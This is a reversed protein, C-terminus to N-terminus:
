WALRTDTGLASTDLVWFAAEPGPSVDLSVKVDGPKWEVSVGEPWVVHTATGGSAGIVNRKVVFVRSYATGGFTDRFAELVDRWPAATGMAYLSPEISPIRVRPYAYKGAFYGAASTVDDAVALRTDLTNSRYGYQTGSTADTSTATFAGATGGTATWDNFLYSDDSSPSVDRYPIEGAATGFTAATGAARYRATRSEIFMGASPHDVLRGGVSRALTQAYDLATFSEATGAAIVVDDAAGGAPLIVRFPSGLAAAMTAFAGWAPQTGLAEVTTNPVWRAMGAVKFRDVAALDVTQDYPGPRNPSVGWVNGEFLYSIRGTSPDHYRVRLPMGVSGMTGTTPDLAGDRNDLTVRAESANTTDTEASRGGRYSGQRVRWSVDTWPTGVREYTSQANAGGAGAVLAATSSALASVGYGPGIEVIFLPAQGGWAAGDNPDGQWVAARDVYVTGAGGLRVFLVYASGPTLAATPTATGYVRTWAGTASTQPVPIGAISAGATDRISVQTAAGGPATGQYLYAQFYVPAQNSPWIFPIGIGQASASATGMVSATGDLAQATSQAAVGSFYGRWGIASGASQYEGGGNTVLNVWM